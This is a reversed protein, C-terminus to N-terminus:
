EVLEGELEVSPARASPTGVRPPNARGRYRRRVGLEYVTLEAQSALTIAGIPQALYAVFGSLVTGTSLLTIPELTQGLTGLVPLSGASTLTIPGISKNLAGIYAGGSVDGASGLTITGISRALDGAVQVNVASTLTIQGISQSLTAVFNASVSGASSVTITGISQNLTAGVQVAGASALTVTGITKSVTGAVDVAGAATLTVTGISRNLVADIGGTDARNVTDSQVWDTNRAHPWYVPQAPPGDDFDFAPLEDPTVFVASTLTIAGISQNLQGVAVGSNNLVLGLHPLPAPDGGSAVGGDQVASASLTIAPLSYTLTGVVVPGGVTALTITGISKSLTGAVAVTGASTSPINGISKGLSGVVEVGGVGTLTITGISQSLTGSIAAPPGFLTSLHPLPAPYQASGVAGASDFFELAVLDATNPEWWVEDAGRVRPPPSKRWPQAM